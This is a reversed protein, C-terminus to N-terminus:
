VKCVHRNNSEGLVSASGMHNIQVVSEVVPNQAVGEGEEEESELASSNELPRM